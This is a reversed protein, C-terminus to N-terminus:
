AVTVGNRPAPAAFLADLDAEIRAGCAKRRAVKAARAATDVVPQMACRCNIVNGASGGPAGPFELLEGDVLFFEELGVVQGDAERHAERTVDDDVALWEKGNVVESQRFGELTGFNYAKGTETWAIRNAESRRLDFLDGIRKSLGAATEEAADSAVIAERLQDKLTGTILKSQEGAVAELWETVGPITIDFIEEDIVGDLAAQGRAAVVKAYARGITTEFEDEIADWPIEDGAKARAPAAKAYAAKVQAEIRRELDVITREVEPVYSGMSLKSEDRKAHREPEDLWAKRGFAPVARAPQPVVVTGTPQLAQPFYLADGGTAKPKGLELRAENQTYLGGAVLRQLAEARSLRLDQIAGVAEYDFRYELDEIGYVRRFKETLDQALLELEPILTNQWYLEKQQLANAYSAHELNMVFIPPVGLAACIEERALDSLNGYDGDLGQSGAIWDADDWLIGINYANAIGRTRKALENRLELRDEPSVYGKFKIWGPPVGGQLLLKVHHQAIREEMWAYFRSSALPSLGRWDDAPNPLRSHFIQEETFPVPRGEKTDYEYGAPRRTPSKKVTMRDSRLLWLESPAGRKGVGELNVFMEGTLQKMMHARSWFAAPGEVPNIAALIRAPEDRAPDMPKFDGNAAVRGVLLPVRAMDLAKRNVCAYVSPSSTLAELFAPGVTPPAEDPDDYRMLRRGLLSQSWEFFKRGIRQRLPAKRM